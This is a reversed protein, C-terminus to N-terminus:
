PDCQTSPPRQLPMDISGYLHAILLSVVSSYCDVSRNDITGFLDIDGRKVTPPSM